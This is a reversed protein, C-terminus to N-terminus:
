KLFYDQCTPKFIEPDSIEGYTISVCEYRDTVGLSVNENMKLIIGTERDVWGIIEIMRDDYSKTKTIYVDTLRGAIMEGRRDKKALTRMWFANPLDHPDTGPWFQGTPTSMDNGGRNGELSATCYGHQEKNGDGIAISRRMPSNTIDVKDFRYKKGDFFIWAEKKTVGEVGPRRSALETSLIWKSSFAVQQPKSPVNAQCGMITLVIIMLVKNKMKTLVASPM